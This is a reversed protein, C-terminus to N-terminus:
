PRDKASQQVPQLKEFSQLHEDTAIKRLGDILSVRDTNADHLLSAAITLLQNRENSLAALQQKTLDAYQQMLSQRESSAEKMADLAASAAFYLIAVALLISGIYSVNLLSLARAAAAIRFLNAKPEPKEAPLPSLVDEDSVSVLFDVDDPIDLTDRLANPVSAEIISLVVPMALGYLEAGQEIGLAALVVELSSYRLSLTAFKIEFREGKSRKVFRDFLEHELARPFRREIRDEFEELEFRFMPFPPDVISERLGRRHEAIQKAQAWFASRQSKEDSTEFKEGVRIALTHWFNERASEKDFKSPVPQDIKIRLAVTM